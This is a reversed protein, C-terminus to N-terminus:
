LVSFHKKNLYDLRRNGVVLSDEIEKHIRGMDAGHAFFMELIDAEYAPPEPDWISPLYHYLLFYDFISYEGKESPEYKGGYTIVKKNVDAQGIYKSVLSVLDRSHVSTNIVTEALSRTASQM